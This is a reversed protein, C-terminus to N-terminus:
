VYVRNKQSQHTHYEFIKSLRGHKKHNNQIEVWQM